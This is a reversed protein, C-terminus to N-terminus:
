NPARPEVADAGPPEARDPDIRSREAEAREAASARTVFADPFEPLLSARAARAERESAFFGLRLRRYVRGKVEARVLYLVRSRFLPDIPIQGLREGEPRAFLQVVYSSEGTDRADISPVQAVRGSSPRAAAAAELPAPQASEWESADVRAVWAGPFRASLRRQERQAEERAEFFGVRYRRWRESGRALDAAYVRSEPGLELEALEPPPASAPQAAIQVAYRLPAPTPHPASSEKPAEGTPTAPAAEERVEPLVLTTTGSAEGGIPPGAAAGNSAGVVGASPEPRRGLRVADDRYRHPVDAVDLAFHHGGREDTWRFLGDRSEPSRWAACSCLLV